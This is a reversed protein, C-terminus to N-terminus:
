GQEGLSLSDIKKQSWPIENEKERDEVLEKAWQPGFEMVWADNMEQRAKHFAEIKAWIGTENLKKKRNIGADKSQFGLDHNAIFNVGM